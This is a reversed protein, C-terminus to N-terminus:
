VFLDERADPENVLKKISGDEDNLRTTRRALRCGMNPFVFSVVRHYVRSDRMPVMTIFSIEACGYAQSVNLDDIVFRM